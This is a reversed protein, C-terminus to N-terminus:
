HAVNNLGMLLGMFMKKIDINKEAKKTEKKHKYIKVNEFNSFM